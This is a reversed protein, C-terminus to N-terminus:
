IASKCPMKPWSISMSSTGVGLEVTEKRRVGLEAGDKGREIYECDVM